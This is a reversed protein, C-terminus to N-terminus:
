QQYLREKTPWTVPKDIQSVVLDFYDDGPVLYQQDADSYTLPTGRLLDVAKSEATMGITCTEGDETINMTDAYGVWDTVVDLILLTTRDLVATSLTVPSGQVQNADDLALAIHASDVQLLELNAGAVQGAQDTIASIQGLGAAGLYDVGSWTLKYNSANLAITGSPFDIKVLTVLMVESANLAAVVPGALSRM